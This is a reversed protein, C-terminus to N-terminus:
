LVRSGAVEANGMQAGTAPVSGGAGQFPLQLGQEPIISQCFGQRRSVGQAGALQHVQGLAWMGIGLHSRIIIVMHAM